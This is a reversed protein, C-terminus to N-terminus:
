TNVLDLIVLYFRGRKRKVKVAHEPVVKYTGNCDPIKRLFFIRYLVLSNNIPRDLTDDVLKQIEYSLMM